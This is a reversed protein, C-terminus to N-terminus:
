NNITEPASVYVCVCVCACACARLCVRMSERVSAIRLLWAHVQNLFWASSINKITYHYLIYTNAVTDFYIYSLHTQDALCTEGQIVM